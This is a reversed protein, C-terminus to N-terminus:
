AIVRAISSIEGTSFLLLSWDGAGALSTDRKMRNKGQGNVMYIIEALYRGMDKTLEDMPMLNDNSARFVAEMGNPTSRWQYLKSHGTVSCAIKGITTKGSGSDGWFHLGGSELDLV